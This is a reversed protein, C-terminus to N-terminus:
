VPINEEFNWGGAINGQASPDSGSTKVYTFNITGYNLSITDLPMSGGGGGQSFSSIIVDTMKIQLYEVQGGAGDTRNVSITAEKILQGQCCARYLLPSSADVSKTVAVDHPQPAGDTPSGSTSRNTVNISTGVSFSMIEISDEHDPATSEGKIDGLKLYNDSPM